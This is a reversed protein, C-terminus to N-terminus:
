PMIISFGSAVFIRVYGQPVLTRDSVFSIDTLSLCLYVNEKTKSM